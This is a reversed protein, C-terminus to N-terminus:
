LKWKLTKIPNRLPHVLPNRNRTYQKNSKEKKKQKNQGM